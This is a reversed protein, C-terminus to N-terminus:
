GRDPLVLVQKLRAIAAAAVGAGSQEGLFERLVPVTTMWWAWRPHYRPFAAVLAGTGAGLDCATPPPSPSCRRATTTRRRIATNAPTAPPPAPGASTTADAGDRARRVPGAVGHLVARGARRAPHGAADGAGAAVAGACARRREVVPLHRRQRRRVAAGHRLRPRLHGHGGARPVPAHMEAPDPEVGIYDCGPTRSRRRSTAPAAVSTSCPATRVPNATRTAQWLDAVMAATDSPWRATSGPRTARSSASSAVAAAGVPVADGAPRVPRHRGDFGVRTCATVSARIDAARGRVSRAAATSARCRGGAPRRCRPRGAACRRAAPRTPHRRSAASRASDPHPRAALDDVAHPDAAAAAAVRDVDPRPQRHDSARIPSPGSRLTRGSTTISVWFPSGNRARSASRGGRPRAPAGSGGRVTAPRRDCPRAAEAPEDLGPQRRPQVPAVLVDRHRQRRRPIQGVEADVGARIATTRLPRSSAGAPSARRQRADSVGRTATSDGAPAACASRPRAPRRRLAAAASARVQVEVDDAAAPPAVAEDVM